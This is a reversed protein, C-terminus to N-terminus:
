RRAPARVARELFDRVIANFRVPNEFCMFHSGGDRESFIELRAGPIQSAIWRQSEVPFVSKEAGVVLSPLRIRSIVDRWDRMAHDLFLKAALQRPMKLCERVAWEYEALPFTATFLPKYREWTWEVGNPAAFRAAFDFIDQPTQTAGYALAEAHTWQPQILQTPAQDVLVLAAVDAPGYLDLYSWIISCGMSHGMLIVDALDLQGIIERLDASFRSIRLGYDVKASLGGARVDVAIVRHDRAFEAVQHHYQAASNSWSPLILFPRGSGTDILSLVAGDPMTLERRPLAAIRAEDPM